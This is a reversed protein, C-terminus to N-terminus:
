NLSNIVKVASYTKAEPIAKWVLVRMDYTDGSKKVVAFHGDVMDMGHPVCHTLHAIAVGVPVEADCEKDEDEIWWEHASTAIWWKGNKSTKVKIEIRGMDGDAELLLGGTQPCKQLLQNIHLNM